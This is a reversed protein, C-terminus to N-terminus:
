GADPLSDLLARPDTVIITKGGLKKAEVIRAAILEYCYSPSIDISACFNKISRGVVQEPKKDAGKKASM